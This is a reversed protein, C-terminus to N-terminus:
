TLTRGAVYAMPASCGAAWLGCWRTTPGTDTVHDCTREARTPRGPPGAHRMVSWRTAPVVCGDASAATSATISRVLALPRVGLPVPQGATAGRTDASPTSLRRVLRRSATSR